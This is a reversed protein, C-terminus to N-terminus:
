RNVKARQIECRCQPRAIGCPCRQPVARPEIAEPHAAYYRNGAEVAAELERVSADQRRQHDASPQPCLEVAAPRRPPRIMRDTM